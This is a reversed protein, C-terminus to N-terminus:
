DDGRPLFHTKGQHCTKCTVPKGTNKDLLGETFHDMMFRAAVKHPTPITSDIRGDRKRVHCYDCGKAGIDQQIGKMMDAIESRSMGVLHSPKALSTDKPVFRAKGQHCTACTVPEGNKTLLRDVLHQKMYIATDKLASPAKFDTKGDEKKAVHCHTCEVGLVEAIAKMGEKSTDLVHKEGEHAGATGLGFLVMWVGWFWRM